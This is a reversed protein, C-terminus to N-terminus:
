HTTGDGGADLARRVTGALDALTFPKALVAIGKASGSGLLRGGEVTVIVKLEPRVARARALLDPDEYGAGDVILLQARGTRLAALMEDDGATFTVVYGLVELIQRITSRLAEDPALVVVSETGTPL